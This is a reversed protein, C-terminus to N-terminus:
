KPKLLSNSKRSHITSNHIVESITSQIGQPGMAYDKGRITIPSHAHTYMFLSTCIGHWTHPLYCVLQLLGREEEPVHTRRISGLDDPLDVFSEVVTSDWWGKMSLRKLGIIDNVPSEGM